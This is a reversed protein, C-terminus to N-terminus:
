LLHLSSSILIIIRKVSGSCRESTSCCAASTRYARHLPITSNVGRLCVRSYEICELGQQRQALNAINNNALLLRFLVIRIRELKNTSASLSHDVNCVLSHSEVHYEYGFSAKTAIENRAICSTNSCVRRTGIQRVIKRLKLTREPGSWSKDEQVVTSLALISAVCGLGKDVRKAM